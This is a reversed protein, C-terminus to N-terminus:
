LGYSTLLRRPVGIGIVHVTGTLEVSAPNQFGRKRAVFTATHRAQVCPGEALGTDCNLGSPLDIALVRGGARNIATIVTRLPERVEGQFGTGLLADVIWDAGPLLQHLADPQPTEPFFRLPTAAAQLVALNVAADGRIEDPAAFVLVELTVGANELHRAMVFGDGGNNGKGCCIVVRNTVGLDQLLEACGRGANEMLVIGPVHFEAIAQRDVRRVEDRTLTAKRDTM